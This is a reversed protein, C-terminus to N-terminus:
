DLRILWVVVPLVEILFHLHNERVLEQAEEHNWFTSKPVVVEVSLVEGNVHAEVQHQIVRLVEVMLRMPGNMEQVKGHSSRGIIFVSSNVRSVAILLNRSTANSLIAIHWITVIVEESCLTAFLFCVSILCFIRETLKLYFHLDFQGNFGFCCYKM